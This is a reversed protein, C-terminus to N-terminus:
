ELLWRWGQEWARARKLRSNFLSINSLYFCVYFIHTKWNLHVFASVYMLQSKVCIFFSLAFFASFESLCLMYSLIHSKSYSSPFLSFYFKHTVNNNFKKNLLINWSIHILYSNDFLSLSFRLLLSYLFFSLPFQNKNCQIFWINEKLENLSSYHRKLPFIILM